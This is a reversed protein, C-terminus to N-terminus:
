LARRPDLSRRPGAGIQELLRALADHSGGVPGPASHVLIAVVRRRGHADALRLALDRARAVDGVARVRGAEDASALGYAEGSGLRGMVAPICTVLLDWAPRVNREIWSSELSPAGELPLPMELGRVGLDAVGAYFIEEAGPDAPAMAYAGLLLDAHTTM